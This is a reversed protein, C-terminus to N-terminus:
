PDARCRGWSLGTEDDLAAVDLGAASAGVPIREPVSVPPPPALLGLARAVASQKPPGHGRLREVTARVQAVAQAVAGDPNAALSIGALGPLVTM